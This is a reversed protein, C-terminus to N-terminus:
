PVLEDVYRISVSQQTEHWVYNRRKTKKIISRLLPHVAVAVHLSEAFVNVDLTGSFRLLRFSDMPYEPKDDFFM